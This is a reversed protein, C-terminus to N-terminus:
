FVMEAAAKTVAIAQKSVERWTTEENYSAMVLESGVWVRCFLVSEDTTGPTPQLTIPSYLQEPTLTAIAALVSKAFHTDHGSELIYLRTSDIPLIIERM